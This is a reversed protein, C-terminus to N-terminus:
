RRSAGGPSAAGGPGPGGAVDARAGVRDRPRRAVRSRPEAARGQDRRCPAARPPVGPRTADTLVDLTVAPALVEFLEGSHRGLARELVGLPTSGGTVALAALAELSEAPLGALVRDLLESVAHPIRDHGAPFVLLERVFLPNGGTLRWLDEAESAGRGSRAEVLEITSALDLGTLELVDAGRRVSSLDATGPEHRRATVLLLVPAEALAGVMRELLWISSEDAWHVDELVVVAPAAAILNAAIGELIEWRRDLGVATSRDLHAGRTIGTWLALPASESPTADSRLVRVARARAIRAVEDVLRSKGIGAEGVVLVLSSRGAVASSLRDLLWALEAARGFLAETSPM